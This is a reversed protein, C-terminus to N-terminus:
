DMGSTIKYQELLDSLTDFYGQSVRTYSQPAFDDDMFMDPDNIHRRIIKEAQSRTEVTKFNGYDPDLYDLELRKDSLRRIRTVWWFEPTMANDTSLVMKPEWTMFRDSKIKTVWGKNISISEIVLRGNILQDLASEQREPLDPLAAGKPITEIEALSPGNDDALVDAKTDEPVEELLLWTVLWTRKDYPEFILLWSNGRDLESIWAGTLQPVIRSKEPNGIPVPLVFCAMIGLLVPLILISVLLGARSRSHRGAPTPDRFFRSVANVIQSHM